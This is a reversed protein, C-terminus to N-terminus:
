NQRTFINGHGHGDDWEDPLYLSINEIFGTTEYGNVNFKVITLVGETTRAYTGSVTNHALKATFKGNTFLQVTQGSYGYIEGENYNRLFFVVGAAVVVVLVCICITILRKKNARKRAKEKKRAKAKADAASKSM